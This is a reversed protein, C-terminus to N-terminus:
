VLDVDDDGAGEGEGEGFPGRIDHDRPTFSANRAGSGAASSRTSQPTSARSAVQGRRSTAAVRPDAVTPAAAPFFTPTSVGSLSSLPSTALVEAEATAPGEMEEFAADLDDLSTTAPDAVNTDAKQTSPSGALGMLEQFMGDWDVLGFSSLSPDATGTAAAPARAAAAPPARAAAAAPAPAAAAAAPARAAPAPACAPAPAPARAPALPALNRTLREARMATKFFEDEDPETPQVARLSDIRAALATRTMKKEGTGAGAGAGWLRGERLAQAASRARAAAASTVPQSLKGDKSIPPKGGLELVSESVVGPNQPLGDSSYPAMARQVREAAAGHAADNGTAERLTALRPGTMEWAKTSIAKASRVGTEESEVSPAPPRALSATKPADRSAPGTASSSRGEALTRAEEEYKKQLYQVGESSMPGRSGEAVAHMPQAKEDEGDDAMQVDPAKGEEVAAVSPGAADDEDIVMADEEGSAQSTAAEAAKAKKQKRKRNKRKKSAKSPKKGEGALAGAGGETQTSPGAASASPGAQDRVNSQLFEGFSGLKEIASQLGGEEPGTAKGKGKSDHHSSMDGGTSMAPSDPPPPPPPPPSPSRSPPPPPTDVEALQRVGSPLSQAAQPISAPATLLVGTSLSASAVSHVPPAVSGHFNHDQHQPVPSSVALNQTVAAVRVAQSNPSICARTRVRIGSSLSTPNSSHASQPVTFSGVATFQSPAPSTFAPSPQPLQSPGPAAGQDPYYSAPIEAQYQNHPPYYSQHFSQPTYPRVPQSYDYLQQQYPIQQQQPTQQHPIQPVPPPYGVSSYAVPPYVSEAQPPYYATQFDQHYSPSQHHSPSRPPQPLVPPPPPYLSANQPFTQGGYAVYGGRGQSAGPYGGRVPSVGRGRGPGGGQGQGRGRGAFPPQQVNQPMWQQSGPMHPQAHLLPGQAQGTLNPIQQQYYPNPQQYYPNTPVPASLMPPYQQQQQTSQQQMTPNASSEPAPAGPQGQRGGHNDQPFQSM